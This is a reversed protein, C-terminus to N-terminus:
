AVPVEKLGSWSLTTAETVLVSAGTQITEALRHVGDRVENITEKGVYTFTGPPLHYARGDDAKIGAAINYKSLEISFRLMTDPAADAFSVNIIYHIM